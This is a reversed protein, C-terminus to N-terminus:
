DFNDPALVKIGNSLNWLKANYDSERSYDAAVVGLIDHFDFIEKANDKLYDIFNDIKEPEGADIYEIIRWPIVGGFPSVFPFENDQCEMWSDIVTTGDEYIVIGYSHGTLDNLNFGTIVGRKGNRLDEMKKWKIFEPDEAAEQIFRFLTDTYEEPTDVGYGDEGWLDDEWDSDKLEKKVDDLSPVRNASSYYEYLFSEAEDIWDQRSKM